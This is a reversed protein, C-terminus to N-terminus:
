APPPPWRARFAVPWTKPQDARVFDAQGYAAARRSCGPGELATGAVPGDREVHRDRRVRRPTPPSRTSSTAFMFSIISLYVLTLVVIAFIPVTMATRFMRAVPYALGVRVSLSGGTLRDAVPQDRPVSISAVRVPRRLGRVLFV